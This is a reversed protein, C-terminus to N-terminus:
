RISESCNSLADTKTINPLIGFDEREIADADLFDEQLISSSKDRLYQFSNAGIGIIFSSDPRNDHLCWATNPVAQELNKALDYNELAVSDPASDIETTLAKKYEEKEYEEFRDSNEIRYLRYQIDSKTEEPRAVWQANSEFYDMIISVDDASYCRKEVEVVSFVDTEPINVTADFDIKLGHIIESSQVNDPAIYAQLPSESLTELFDTKSVINENVPTSQCGFIMATACLCLMLSVIYKKRM